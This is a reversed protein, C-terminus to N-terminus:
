RDPQMVLGALGYKARKSENNGQEKTSATGVLGVAHDVLWRLNEDGEVIV